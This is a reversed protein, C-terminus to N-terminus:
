FATDLLNIDDIKVDFYPASRYEPSMSTVM